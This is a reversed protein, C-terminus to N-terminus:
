GKNGCPVPQPSMKFGESEKSIITRPNEQRGIHWPSLLPVSHFGDRGADLRDRDHDRTLPVPDHGCGGWPHCRAVRRVSLWLGPLAGHSQIAELAYASCSPTFRCRGLPGFLITKAPSLVWRYIRVLLLLMLQAANVVTGEAFRSPALRGSLRTGSRDPQM